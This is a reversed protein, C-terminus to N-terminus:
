LHWICCLLSTPLYEKAFQVMLLEFWNGALKSADKGQLIFVKLFLTLFTTVLLPISTPISHLYTFHHSTFQRIHLSKIKLHLSNFHTVTFNKSIFTDHVNPHGISPVYNYRSYNVRTYRTSHEVQKTFHPHPYTHAKYHTLTKTNRTTTSVANQLWITRWGRQTM